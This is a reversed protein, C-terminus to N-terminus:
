FAQKLYNEAAKIFEKVWVLMERVQQENQHVVFSADGSIQAHLSL